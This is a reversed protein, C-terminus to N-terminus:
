ILRYSLSGVDFDEDPFTPSAIVAVTLSDGKEVLVPNQNKVLEFLATDTQFQGPRITLYHDVYSEQGDKSKLYVRLCFRDIRKDAITIQTFQVQKGSAHPISHKKDKKEIMIAPDVPTTAAKRIMDEFSMGQNDNNGNSM